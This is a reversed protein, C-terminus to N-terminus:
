RGQINVLASGDACQRVLRLVGEFFAQFILDPLDVFRCQDPGGALATQVHGEGAAGGQFAAQM